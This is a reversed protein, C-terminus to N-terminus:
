QETITSENIKIVRIKKNSSDSLFLLNNLHAVSVISGFSNSGMIDSVDIIPNYKKRVFEDKPYIRLYNTDRMSESTIAWDNNFIISTPKISLFTGKTPEIPTVLSSEAKNIINKINYYLYGKADRGAVILNGSVVDMSYVETYGNLTNLQAYPPLDWDSTENIQSTEFVKIINNKEKVFVLDDKVVVGFVHVFTQWWQGNGVTTIGETTSEDFVFLRSERSGIYIRGADISISSLSSLEISTDGKKFHTITQIHELSLADFIELVNGNCVYLKDNSIAIGSPDFTGTGDGILNATLESSDTPYYYTYDDPIYENDDKSCSYFICLTLMLLLLKKMNIINKLEM